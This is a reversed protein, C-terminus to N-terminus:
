AACGACFRRRPTRIWPRCRTTWSWSRATRHRARAGAGHAAEARGVAHHRARGGGHRLGASVVGPRRRAARAAAADVRERPWPACARCRGAPEGLAINEAITASFSSSRRCSGPRAGRLVRSRCSGCTTGTWSCAHRAAPRAAAGAPRPADSKGSGTGGVIAATTGAPISRLRRQLVPEGSFGFAPERSSSTAAYDDLEAVAHRGDVHADRCRREVDLVELM